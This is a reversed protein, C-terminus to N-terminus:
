KKQIVAYDSFIYGTKGSLTGSTMTVNYWTGGSGSEAKLYKFEDGITTTGLINTALSTNPTTRLRVNTGSVYGYGVNVIDKPKSVINNQSLSPSTTSRNTLMANLLGVFDDFESGIYFIEAKNTESNWTYLKFGAGSLPREVNGELNKGSSAHWNNSANYGVLDDSALVGGQFIHKSHILVSALNIKSEDYSSRGHECGLTVFYGITKQELTDTFFSNSVSVNRETDNAATYIRTSTPSGHILFCRLHKQSLSVRLPEILTDKHYLCIM